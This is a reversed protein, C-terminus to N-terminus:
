VTSYAYFPLLFFLTAHYLLRTVYSTVEHVFGPPAGPEAAAARGFFLTSAWALALFLVVWLVLHYRERALLGIVTGATLAWASHLMWILTRHRGWLRGARERLSLPVEM